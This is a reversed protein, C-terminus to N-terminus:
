VRMREFGYVGVGRQIKDALDRKSRVRVEGGARVTTESIGRAQRVGMPLVNKENEGRQANLRNQVGQPASALTDAYRLFDALFHRFFASEQTVELVSATLHRLTPLLMQRPKSGDDNASEDSGDDSSPPTLISTDVSVDVGGTLWAAAGLADIAASILTGIVRVSSDIGGIDDPTTEDDSDSPYVDLTKSAWGGQELAHRLLEILLFLDHRSLHDRLSHPLATTSSTFHTGLRTLLTHLTEARANPSETLSHSSATILAVALSLDANAKAAEADVDADLADITLPETAAHTGNMGNVKLKKMPPEEPLTSTPQGDLSPTSFSRLIWRLSRALGNLSVYPAPKGSTTDFLEALKVMTPDSRAIEDVAAADIAPIAQRANDSRSPIGKGLSEIM